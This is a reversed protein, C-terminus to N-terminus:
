SKSHGEEVVIKFVGGLEAHTRPGNSRGKPSNVLALTELGTVVMRPQDRVVKQPQRGEVVRWVTIPQRTSPSRSWLGL